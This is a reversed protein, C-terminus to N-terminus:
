SNIIGYWYLLFKDLVKIIGEENGKLFIYNKDIEIRNETSNTIYIRLVKTGNILLTENNYFLWFYEDLSSNTYYKCGKDNKTCTPIVNANRSLYIILNLFTLTFNGSLDPDIFIFTINFGKLYSLNENSIIKIDSLEEVKYRTYVCDSNNCYQNLLQKKDKTHNLNVLFIFLALAVIVILATKKLKNM